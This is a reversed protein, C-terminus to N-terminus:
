DHWLEPNLDWWIDNVQWGLKELREKQTLDDPDGPIHSKGMIRYAIRRTVVAVDIKAVLIGDSYVPYEMRVECDFFTKAIIKNLKIQEPRAETNGSEKMKHKIIGKKTM